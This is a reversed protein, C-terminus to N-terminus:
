QPLKERYNDAAIQADPKSALGFRIKKHRSASPILPIVSYTQRSPVTTAAAPGAAAREASAPRTESIAATPLRRVGYSSPGAFAGRTNGAARLAVAVPIGPRSGDASVAAVVAARRVFAAGGRRPRARPYLAGVAARLGRGVRFARTCSSPRRWAWAPSTRARTASSRMPSPRRTMRRRGSTLVWWSTPTWSAAACASAPCVARRRRWCSSALTECVGPHIFLDAAHYYDALKANDQVYSRWTLAGTRHRTAWTLAGTRHRTAPLVRRLPGDGVVVLHYRDPHREHLAEFAALLMEINKEPSLRGVYLLVRRDRPLDLRKRLDADRPALRFAKTDVGLNLTVSNTVGWSHLLQRLHESPVLTATFLSYLKVIYDEAFSLVADRLWAGGYKLATRLYADPFHSHYFGFVPAHLQRGARLATWAVHYPDGAEIIDPRIDDLLDLVRHTNLILRYRSPYRSFFDLRPSRITHLHLRGERSYRTESGPIILHHEDRTREVVHLRKESIYRKVGGSVPSYFQTVDCIKM